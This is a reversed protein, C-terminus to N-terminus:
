VRLRPEARAINALIGRTGDTSRDDVVILEFDPYAQQLLGALAAGIHREEDRAAIVVSVRPAGRELTPVDALLPMDLWGWTLQFFAVISIIALAGALGLIVTHM